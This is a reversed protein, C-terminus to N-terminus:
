TRGAPFCGLFSQPGSIEIATQNKYSGSQCDAGTAGRADADANAIPRVIGIVAVIVRPIVVLADIVVVPSYLSVPVRMPIVVFQFLVLLLLIPLPPVAM